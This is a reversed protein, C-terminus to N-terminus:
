SLVSTDLSLQEVAEIDELVLLDGPLVAGVAEIDEVFSPLV